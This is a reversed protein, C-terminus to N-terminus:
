FGLGLGFTDWGRHHHHGGRAWTPGAPIMGLLVIILCMLKFIKM